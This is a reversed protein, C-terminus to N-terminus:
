LLERGEASFYLKELLVKKAFELKRVPDHGYVCYDQSHELKKQSCGANCLPMISCERCAQYNFVSMKEREYHNEKWQINGNSMLKGESNQDTFDRATCKFIGGDYNVVIQNKKDAYCTDMISNPYTALSVCRFGKSRIQNIVQDIDCNVSDNEQWVKHISFYLYKKDEENLVEFSDLIALTDAKTDASVNIRVTVQFKRKVCLIINRIIKDYTNVGLKTFRVKNHRDRHGDLTIQFHQVSNQTCFSLFEENILYGNTTFNSCVEIKKKAAYANTESLIPQIVKKFHLLPEGGFWDIKIKKLYMNTDLVHKIYQITMNLTEPSMKTGSLHTEYCYWCKFNCNLTPNIIIQFVSDNNNTKNIISKAILLEDTNDDIIFKDKILMQYVKGNQSILSVIDAKDCNPLASYIQKDLAVCTGYLSNYGLINNKHEFFVSYKSLKM